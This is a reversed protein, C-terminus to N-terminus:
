ELDGTPLKRTAAVERVIGELELLRQHCSSWCFPLRVEGFDTLGRLQVM